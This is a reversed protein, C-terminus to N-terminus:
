WMLFRANFLPFIQAQIDGREQSLIISESYNEKSDFLSNIGRDGIKKWWCDQKIVQTRNWWDGERIKDYWSYERSSIMRQIDVQELISTGM